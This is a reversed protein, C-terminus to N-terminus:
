HVYGISPSNTAASLSVMLVILFFIVAVGVWGLALGAVAMGRGGEGREKIQHLSVYGFILALVSGLGSLWLIGLALSAIALGNTPPAAYMLRQGFPGAPSIGQSGDAWASSPDVAAGCTPCSVKDSRVPHGNPCSIFGPALAHQGRAGPRSATGVAEGDEPQTAAWQSVARPVGHDPHDLFRELPLFDVTAMSYALATRFSPDASARGALADLFVRDSARRDGTVRRRCSDLLGTSVFERLKQDDVATLGPPAVPAADTVLSSAQPPPAGAPIVTAAEAASTVPKGCGPCFRAGSALARGCQDCFM